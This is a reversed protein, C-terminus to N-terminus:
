KHQKAQNIDGNCVVPIHGNPANHHTSNVSFNSKMLMENSETGGVEYKGHRKQLRKQRFFFIYIYLITQVSM